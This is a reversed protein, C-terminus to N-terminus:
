IPFPENSVFQYSEKLARTTTETKRLRELLRKQPVCAHIVGLSFSSLCRIGTGWSLKKLNIQLERAHQSPYKQRNNGHGARDVKVHVHCTEGGFMQLKVAM